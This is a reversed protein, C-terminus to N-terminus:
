STTAFMSHPTHHFIFSQCSKSWQTFSRLTKTQNWWISSYMEHGCWLIKNEDSMRPHIVFLIPNQLYNDICRFYHIATTSLTIELQETLKLRECVQLFDTSIDQKDWADMSVWLVKKWHHGWSPSILSFTQLYSRNFCFELCTVVEWFLAWGLVVFNMDVSFQLYCHGVKQSIKFHGGRDTVRVSVRFKM